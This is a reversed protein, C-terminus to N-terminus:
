ASGVTETDAEMLDPDSPMDPFLRCFGDEARREIVREEILHNRARVFAKTQHSRVAASSIGRKICERAWESNVDSALWMDPKDDVLQRFVEMAIPASQ